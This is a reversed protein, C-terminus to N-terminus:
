TTQNRNQGNTNGKEPWLHVVKEQNQNRPTLIVRRQLKLGKGIIGSVVLCNECM